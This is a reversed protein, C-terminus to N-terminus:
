KKPPPSVSRANIVQPKGAEIHKENGEKFGIAFGTFMGVFFVIGLMLILILGGIGSTMRLYGRNTM